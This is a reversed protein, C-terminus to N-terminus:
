EVQKQVICPLLTEKLNEKGKGKICKKNHSNTQPVKAALADVVIPGASQDYHTQQLENALLHEGISKSRLAKDIDGWTLAPAKKLRVSLIELLCKVSDSQDAEISDIETKSMGFHLGLFDYKKRVPHLAEYVNILDGERLGKSPPAALCSKAAM